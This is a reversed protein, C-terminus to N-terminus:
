KVVFQSYEKGAVSFVLVTNKEVAYPITLKGGPHTFSVLTYLDDNPGFADLQMDVAFPYEQLEQTFLGYVLKKNMMGEPFAIETSIRTYKEVATNEPVSQSLIVDKDSTTESVVFDYVLNDKRMQMYMDNISMGKLAPVVVKQNDAGKSVVFVIEVPDYIQTGAPPDQRLIIGPETESYEYLPEALKVAAKSSSSFLSQISTKVEDYSKGVYDDIENLVIGRSVTLNIRKGAKVITGAKPSQSLVMGKDDPNDSYRLVLKPYLEKVQMELLAESLEKGTVDPVMVEEAGKVTAFFVALCILGMFVISVIVVGAYLLANEQMREIMGVVSVRWNKIDFKNKM